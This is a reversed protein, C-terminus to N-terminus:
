SVAWPPAPLYRAWGPWDSTATFPSADWAALEARESQTLDDACEVMAEFWALAEAQTHGPPNDPTTPVM